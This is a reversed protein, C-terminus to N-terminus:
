AKEARYDRNFAAEADILVRNVHWCHPCAVPASELAEGHAEHVVVFGGGCKGCTLRGDTAAPPTAPPTAAPRPAPAPAARAAPAPAAPSAARPAAAPAAAAPAPAAGGGLAGRISERIRGQPAVVTVGRLKLAPADLTVSWRDAMKVLSVMWEGAAARDALANRVDAEAQEREEKSCGACLIKVSM